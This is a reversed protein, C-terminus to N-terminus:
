DPVMEIGKDTWRWLKRSDNSSRYVRGFRHGCQSCVWGPGPMCPDGLLEDPGLRSPSGYIVWFVDAENECRPCIYTGDKSGEEGEPDVQRTPTVKEFGSPLLWYYRGDALRLWARRFRENRRQKVSRLWALANGPGQPADFCHEDVWPACGMGVYSSQPNSSDRAPIEYAIGAGVVGISVAEHWRDQALAQRQLAAQEDM